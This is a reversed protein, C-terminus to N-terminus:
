NSLCHHAQRKWPSAQDSERQKEYVQISVLGKKIEIIEGILGKDSVKCIEHIKAGSLGSATVLPGSVKEITGFAM